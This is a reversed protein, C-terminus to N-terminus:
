KRLRRRLERQSLKHLPKKGQKLGNQVTKRGLVIIIVIFTIFVMALVIGIIIKM